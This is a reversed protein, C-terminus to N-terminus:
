RAAASAVCALSQAEPRTSRDGIRRAAAIALVALGVGAFVDVFYHGGVLPTALLMAVNAMLALPRM